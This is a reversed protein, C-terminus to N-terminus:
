KALNNPDRGERRAVVLAAGALEKVRDTLGDTSASASGFLAQKAAEYTATSPGAGGGMAMSHSAEYPTIGLLACLHQETM